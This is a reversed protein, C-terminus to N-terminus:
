FALYEGGNVHLTIGVAYSSDDSALYLYAPALEFTQCPRAIPNDSGFTMYMEPPLSAPILPTWTRGPAVANVRIGRKLLSLALSRTFASVAGKTASYDILQEFGVMSTVSSTNIITSGPRLYPVVAKAFYVFSFFNTRFTRELQEATIHEISSQVHQEAANNILIDIRGFESIARGVAERCFDEYGIDGAITLCRRGIQEVRAKTEAADGHENLYVVVIDAGEKAFLYVIARGIGSDGVTIIAVKGQLKGTGIHNINESIPRPIMISEIGPQQPQYQLPAQIPLDEFKTVKGYNSFM